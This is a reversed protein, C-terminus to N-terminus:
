GHDPPSQNRPSGYKIRLGVWCTVLFPASVLVSLLFAAVYWPGDWMKGYLYGLSLGIPVSAIAWCGLVFLWTMLRGGHVQNELDAQAPEYTLRAPRKWKPCM